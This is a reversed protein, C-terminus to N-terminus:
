QAPALTAPTASDRAGAPHASGQKALATLMAITVFVLTGVAQHLSQLPAPLHLEVLAAAVCVQLVIAYFAFRSALVITRAERRKRIGVALGFVHFFLLFALVRHAIQTHLPAGSLLVNHCWPFGQCSQAAGPVNATLAGFEVVIFALVAAAIAGRFTKPSAAGPALTAAGLGGAHVLAVVLTALLLMAIGNHVAILYPSSLDLKVILAGVLAAAIAIALAVVAPTRVPKARDSRYSLWVLAGITLLLASALLRHTFEIITRPDSLTPWLQSNCDPWHNGCGLGSGSIRVIAGFVAHTYVLALAAYAVKRVAVPM